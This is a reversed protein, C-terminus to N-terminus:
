KSKKEEKWKEEKKAWSLWEWFTTWIWQIFELIWDSKKWEKLDDWEKKLL